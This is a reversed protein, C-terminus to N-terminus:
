AETAAVKAKRTRAAPKRPTAPPRRATKLQEIRAARRSEVEAEIAPLLEAANRREASSGAEALRAANDRLNKLRDDPMEPLSSLITMRRRRHALPPYGDCGGLRRISVIATWTQITSRTKGAVPERRLTSIKELTM